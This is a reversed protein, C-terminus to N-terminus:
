SGKYAIDILMKTLLKLCKVKTLSYEKLNNKSKQPDEKKLIWKAYEETSSISELISLEEPKLLGTAIVPAIKKLLLSGRFRYDYYYLKEFVDRLDITREMICKVQEELHFANTGQLLNILTNRLVYKNYVIIPADGHLNLSNIVEPLFNIIQENSSFIRNKPNSTKKEFDVFFNTFQYPVSKFSAINIKQVIHKHYELSFFYAKKQEIVRAFFINLEREDIKIKEDMMYKIRKKDKGILMKPPCDILEVKDKWFLQMKKYPNIEVLDFNSPQENIHKWCIPMLPCEKPEYCQMGIDKVLTNNDKITNQIYTIKQPISPILKNIKNTIDEVYIFDRDTKDTSYNADLCVLFIKNVKYGTNRLIHAKYAIWWKEIGIKGIVKPVFEIMTKENPHEVLLDIVIDEGYPTPVIKNKLIRKASQNEEKVIIKMAREKFSTENFEEAFSYDMTTAIKNNAIEFAKRKCRFYSLFIKKNIGSEM